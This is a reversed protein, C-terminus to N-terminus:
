ASDRKEFGFWNVKEMVAYRMDDGERNSLGIAM